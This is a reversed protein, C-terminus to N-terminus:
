EFPRVVVGLRRAADLPTHGDLRAISIETDLAVCRMYDVSECGVPTAGVILMSQGGARAADRLVWSRRDYPPYFTTVGDILAACAYAPTRLEFLAYRVDNAEAAAAVRDCLGVLASSTTLPYNPYVEARERLGGVRDSWTALRVPVTIAVLVCLVITAPRGAARWIGSRAREFAIFAVFWLGLPLAMLVRAPPYYPTPLSDRSRPSTLVAIVLVLFSAAAVRTRADGRAFAYTMVFGIALLTLVPSRVIELSFDTFHRSTNTLNDILVDFRPDLSPAPHLADEPHARYWYRTLAFWGLPALAGVAMTRALALIQERSRWNTVVADIGVVLAPVVLLASAMDFLVALGGVATAISLARAAGPKVLILAACVCAMLRGFASNFVISLVAYETRLLLPVAAACLAWGPRGRRLAALALLWWGALNIAMIAFPLGTPYGVGLSALVEAPVAEFTVGYRQGWFNPQRPRLEGWSRAAAWLLAQDESVDFRLWRVLLRLQQAVSAIVTAVFAVSLWRPADRVTDRISGREM